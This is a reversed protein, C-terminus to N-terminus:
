TFIARRSLLPNQFINYLADAATSNRNNWIVQGYVAPLGTFNTANGYFDNYSIGHSLSGSVKVANTAGVFINDQVRADWPDTADVGVRCNVIINNIFVPSGSGAYSGVQM